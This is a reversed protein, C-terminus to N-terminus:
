KPLREDKSPLNRLATHIVPEAQPWRTWFSGFHGIMLRLKPRSVWFQLTRCLATNGRASRGANGRYYAGRFDDIELSTRIEGSPRSIIDGQAERRSQYDRGTAPSPFAHPKM